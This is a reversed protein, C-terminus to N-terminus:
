RDAAASTAWLHRVGSAGAGALRARASRGRQVRPPVAPDCGSGGPQLAAPGRGGDSGSQPGSQPGPCGHEHRRRRRPWRRYTRPPRRPASPVARPHHKRGRFHPHRPDLLPLSARPPLAPRPPLARARGPAGSRRHRSGGRGRPTHLPRRRSRGGRLDRGRAEGRGGRQPPVHAPRDPRARRRSSGQPYPEMQPEM